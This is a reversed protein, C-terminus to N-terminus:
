VGILIENHVFWYAIKHVVVKSFLRVHTICFTFALSLLLCLWTKRPISGNVPLPPLDEDSPFLHGPKCESRSLDFPPPPPALQQVLPRPSVCSGSSTLPYFFFFLLVFVVCSSFLPPPPPPLALHQVLPAPSVISGLSTLPTFVLFLVVSPDTNIIGWGDTGYSTV